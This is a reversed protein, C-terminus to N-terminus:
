RYEAVVCGVDRPGITVPIIAQGKAIRPEIEQGTFADRYRTGARHRVSLLDGRMTKYEANFLTWATAQPSTFQNAYVTPMLTPVLPAVEDSCFADKYQHLIAFSQKLFNRADACYDRQPDQNLWWAEANFFPWKLLDWGGEVFPNYSVLQFVKFDPFMFRFLDVRHPALVPDDSVVSYGLAGDQYQAHVDNPTEEAEPVIKTHESVEDQLTIADFSLTAPAKACQVEVVLSRVAGTVGRGILDVAIAHWQGDLVLDKPNILELGERSGDFAWLSYGGMGLNEAKYRVVLYPYYGSDFPQLPLEWKMGKGTEDVQLTNAGDAVIVQAKTTPNGLFSPRLEWGPDTDFSLPLRAQAWVGVTILILGCCLSARM